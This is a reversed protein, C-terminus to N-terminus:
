QEVGAARTVCGGDSDLEGFEFDHEGLFRPTFADLVDDGPASDDLWGISAELYDDYVDSDEIYEAPRWVVSM